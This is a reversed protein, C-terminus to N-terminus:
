LTRDTVESGHLDSRFVATEQVSKGLFGAHFDHIL